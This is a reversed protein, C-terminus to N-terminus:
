SLHEFGMRVIKMFGETRLNRNQERIHTPAYIRTSLHLHAVFNPNKTLTYLHGMSLSIEVIKDSKM